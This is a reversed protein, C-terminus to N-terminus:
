PGIRTLGLTFTAEPAVAAASTIPASSGIPQEKSEEEGNLHAETWSKTRYCIAPSYGIASAEIQVPRCDGDRDRGKRKPSGAFILQAREESTTRTV